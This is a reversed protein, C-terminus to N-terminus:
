HRTTFCRLPASKCRLPASKDVDIKADAIQAVAYVVPGGVLIPLPRDFACSGSNGPRTAICTTM